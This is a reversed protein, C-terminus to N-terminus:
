KNSEMRPILRPKEVKNRKSYFNKIAMEMGSRGDPGYLAIRYSVAMPLGKSLCYFYSPRLVLYEQFIDPIGAVKTTDTSVFYSATRNVYLEMGDTSNYNPIDSLMIGNATLRFGTPTGTQTTSNLYDDDESQLDLQNLTHWIGGSDKIRIKYIDLIQNGQEDVTFVYDQQGSVVDAFVIPYDVQNTDDAPNWRGAAENALIFFNSLAFNVDVTKDKIPYASTSTSQTSTAREIAQVIGKRNSTDSFQLISM